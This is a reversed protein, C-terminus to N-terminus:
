NKLGSTSFNAPLLTSDIRLFMLCENINVMSVLPCLENNLVKGYVSDEVQQRSGLTMLHIDRTLNLQNAIQEYILEGVEIKDEKDVNEFQNLAARSYVAAHIGPIVQQIAVPQVTFLQVDSSMYRIKFPNRNKREIEPLYCLNVAKQWRFCSKEVIKQLM